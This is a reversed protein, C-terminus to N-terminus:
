LPELVRLSEEFFTKEELFGFRQNIEILKRYREVVDQGTNWHLKRLCVPCLAMPRADSEKRHNSGNMNCEYYICHHMSFMHGIEHTGTKITRKLFVQYDEPSKAPDGNRYVSWVGVRDDLSAEGFVFNWGSGPWLDMATFAIMCFADEPKRPILRDEIVYRTLIQKDKTKPHMRHAHKPFNDLTMPETFKVPLGYYIAIYEATKKIVEKQVDGFPGLLTIYIFKRKDDPQVPSSKIYDSFGQGPEPNQAMWDYRGPLKKIQHLDLLKLYSEEAVEASSVIAPSLTVITLMLTFIVVPLFM